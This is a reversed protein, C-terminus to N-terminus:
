KNELNHEGDDIEDVRQQAILKFKEQLIINHLDDVMSRSIPYRADDSYLSDGNSDLFEAVQSPNQFVGGVDIYQVAKHIDSNSIIYIYNDLLFAVVMDSNFRGNGTYLARNYSVLNYRETLRDAPGIRVFTGLSNKREITEPIEVTSRFLYKNIPIGPVISSDVPEIEIPSIYQVFSNDIYFPNKDFKQKLLQARKNHVWEKMLSMPIVDDDKYHGRVVEILSYAIQNLTENVM